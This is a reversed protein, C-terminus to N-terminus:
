HERSNLFFTGSTPVLKSYVEEGTIGLLWSPLGVLAVFTWYVRTSPVPGSPAGGGPLLSAVVLVPVRVGSYHDKRLNVLNSWSGPEPHDNGVERLWDSPRVSGNLRYYRRATHVFPLSTIPVLQHSTGVLCEENFLLLQLARDGARCPKVLNGLGRPWPSTSAPGTLTARTRGLVDLPM